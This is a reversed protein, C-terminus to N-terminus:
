HCMYVKVPILAYHNGRTLHRMAASSLDIIRGERLPGTDNIYVTAGRGPYQPSTVFVFRRLPILPRNTLSGDSDRLLVSAATFADPNMIEGTATPHGAFQDPSGDRNRGYSSGIGEYDPSGSSNAHTGAPCNDAPDRPTPSSAVPGTCSGSPCALLGLQERGAFLFQLFACDMGRCATNPGYLATVTAGPLEQDGLGLPDFLNVPDSRVYNYLNMGAGYGIPDTQMFRGLTPSYMRAKYYYIGLEPLWAQGTYQFRGTNAAGPIGHEDYTNVDIPSGAADASAVISGREDAILFRTASLTGGVYDYAVEPTDVGTGHVYRRVLNGNSDYEAVLADGDYLFQTFNPNGTTWALRGLPDYGLQVGGSAGVLRNESDYTFTRSGDSALNGNGDYSLNLASGGAPTISGYRNLGDAAYSRNVAYHGGWAYTDNSQTRSTLQSAWNYGFSFSVDHASGPLNHTVASLRGMPDYGYSSVFAAHYSQDSVTGRDNFSFGNLWNVGGERVLTVRGLIDRGYTFYTGDPHTIRTRNGALDYDYSLTRTTGSILTSTSSLRGLADFTNTVGQGAASFLASTMRGLNDYAYAVDPDSGPLDKLITRGLNDYRYNIIRTDRIRVSSVLPTSVSAGNLTATAYTLQEYDTTSSQGPTTPNPYRTKARRGLGDYEYTTLNGQGDASTTVRNLSDYGTTAEVAALATHLGTTVTVPLRRYWDYGIQSIRDPGDSGATAADCASPPPSAFTAPNLRMATCDPLGSLTTSSQTLSYTTGGANLRASTARGQADYGTVQQLQSTFTSMGSAGQDTATGSEVTTPQDDDNYITRSARRLQWGAGDPDPGIAGIQRRAADYYARTTDASGLLPGDTTEVDGDPTYTMTTTAALTGNGNGSTTSVPLLNNATGPTQAGYSITTRAEDASGACSGPAGTICSSISTPLTVNSGSALISGTNNLYYAQYSTYGYVTQPQVGNAGAPLKVTLVDGANPDYTYETVNGREDTTSTPQNCIRPNSCTPLYTASTVMDLPSGPTSSIRRVQTVNGRADYTYQTTPGGAVAVASIRNNTWTYSTTVNGSVESLIHGTATDYNVQRPPGSQEPYFTLTNGGSPIPYTYQWTGRGDSVSGARGWEDIGYTLTRGTPFIMTSTGATGPQNVPHPPQQTNIWRYVRNLNDTADVETASPATFTLRPWNGTLTCTDAGPDCAEVARNFLVVGTQRYLPGSTAPAYDNHLQYGLNSVVSRVWYYDPLPSPAHILRYYYTLSQGAPYTLSLIYPPSATGGPNVQGFIAVAGDSRTYTFRSTGSDWTLTSGRGQDQGFTGSALTGTLTFTETSGGITVTYKGSSPTDAEVLGFLEAQGANGNAWNYTLSGPGGPGISISTMVQVVHGSLQDVGNEDVSRFVSPIDNEIQQACAPEVLASTALLACAYSAARSM